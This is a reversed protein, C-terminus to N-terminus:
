LEQFLVRYDEVICYDAYSFIPAQRDTNIAIIRKANRIGVIHQTAGSIGIAVYIEPSISIGSQGVQWKKDILEEEVVARTGSVAAGYKKAIREILQLGTIDQVGRGVGFVLQADTLAINREKNHIWESKLITTDGLPKDRVKEPKYSRIPIGKHDYKGSIIFSNEKCTCISVNTHIVQIQALITSNIAARTFIFAYKDEQRKAEIDICEATLGAGLRVALDAAICKGWETATFIILDPKHNEQQYIKMLVSAAQAYDSYEAEFHMVEDAGYASLSHLMDREYKGICIAFVKADDQEIISSAKYLLQKSYIDTKNPEKLCIVWINAKM